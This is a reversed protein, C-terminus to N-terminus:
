SKVKQSPTAVTGNWGSRGRRAPDGGFGKGRVQNPGLKSRTKVRNQASFPSKPDSRTWILDFRTRIPEPPFPNPPPGAPLPLNPQFPGTAGGSLRSALREQTEKLMQRLVAFELLLEYFTDQLPNPPLCPPNKSHTSLLLEQSPM